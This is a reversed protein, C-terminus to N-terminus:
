KVDKKINATAEKIVKSKIVKVTKVVEIMKISIKIYYGVEIRGINHINVSVIEKKIPSIRIVENETEDSTQNRMQTYRKM